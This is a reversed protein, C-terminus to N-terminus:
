PGRDSRHRAEDLLREIKLILPAYDYPKAVFQGAPFDKKVRRATGLLVVPATTSRPDALAARVAASASQAIELDLVIVDPRHKRALELAVDARSAEWIQTGRTTLATRLVERTEASRDVILVSPRSLV